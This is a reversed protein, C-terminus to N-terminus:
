IRRRWDLLPIRLTFKSGAAFVSSVIINGMLVEQALKKTLYLGLGTGPVVPRQPSIIRFFPSFLKKMEEAQIGIGTDSVSMDVADGTESIEVTLKISGRDTYKVANSVLNILCQLLRRRDGRLPLHISEVDADLNKKKIDEAFSQMAEAAVDYADFDEVNSEIKGAEIKSVDIVDNILALLLKGSRLIVSLNDKQEQTLPGTWENLMISSFGIVSNLPTRLEHSMSAIFLSKLRDLDKLKDNATELEATKENLDEVINMLAAQHDRLEDSKKRLDITREEVRKELNENLMTIEEEVRKRYSIDQSTGRLGCIKGGADRKVEGRAIVWRTPTTPNELELDIEYSDGSGLARDSAIKLRKASEKTYTEFREYFTPPTQDGAVGYIRRYENSLRIANTEKDWDWSGIHALRQSENLEAERNKLEEEVRKRKTIDIFTTLIESIEGREDFAPDANALVWLPAESGSRRVGVVLDRLPRGSALVKTAPYEEVPMKTGDERFFYWAPDATGIGIMRGEPLGLLEQALPNGMLIRGDPDHVVVAVHINWLLLRYKSESLALAKGREELMDLMANFERAFSAAEDTGRIGSRAAQDGAMVRAITEQVAYLRSSINRGLLWAILSGFLIAALVYLADQLNLEALTQSAKKQGLGIRVWGVHRNGLVAPVAVDVLATTKNLVTERADKPLDLLYSGARNRDSHALVFGRNDSIITFIMEPYRREAEVLESLGSVDNAAIWGASSTALAQAMAVAGSTQNDLLVDRQRMTSNLIFLAMLFANVLAVYLILRGRFTGQGFLGSTPKM